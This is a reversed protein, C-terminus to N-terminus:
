MGMFMSTFAISLFSIAVVWFAFILKERIRWGRRAREPLRAAFREFACEDEADDAHIVDPILRTPAGREVSEVTGDVYLVLDPGQPHRLLMAGEAGSRHLDAVYGRRALARLRDFAAASESGRQPAAQGTGDIRVAMASQRM